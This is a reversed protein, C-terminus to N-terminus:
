PPQSSVHEEVRVQPLPTRRALDPGRFWERAADETPFMETLEILTIGERDTRGAMTAREKDRLSM